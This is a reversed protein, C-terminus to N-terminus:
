ENTDGALSLIALVIALTAIAFLSNFSFGLAAGIICMVALGEAIAMRYIM